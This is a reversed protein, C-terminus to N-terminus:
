SAVTAEFQELNLAATMEGEVMTAKSGDGDGDLDYDSCINNYIITLGNRVIVGDGDNDEDGVDDDAVNYDDHDHGLDDGIDGPGHEDGHM